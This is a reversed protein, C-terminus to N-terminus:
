GRYCAGDGDEARGAVRLGGVEFGEVEELGAGQALGDVEAFAAMTKITQAAGVGADLAEVVDYGADLGAVIGIAVQNGGAEFAIRELTLAGGGVKEAPEVALAAQGGGFEVGAEAGEVSEGGALEGRGDLVGVSRKAFGGMAWFGDNRACRPIRKKRAVRWGDSPVETYGRTATWGARFTAWEDGQLARRRLRAKKAKPTRRSAAAKEGGFSAEAGWGRKQADEERTPARNFRARREGAAPDAEARVQPGTGADLNRFVGKPPRM